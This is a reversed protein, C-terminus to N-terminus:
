KEEGKQFLSSFLAGIKLLKSYLNTRTVGAQADISGAAQFFDAHHSLDEMAIGLAIASVHSFSIKEILGRLCALGTLAIILCMWHLHHLHDAGLFLIRRWRSSMKQWLNLDSARRGGSAERIIFSCLKTIWFALWTEALIGWVNNIM